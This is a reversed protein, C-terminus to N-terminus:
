LSLALMATAVTLVPMTPGLMPSSKRLEAAIMTMILTKVHRSGAHVAVNPNVPKRIVVNEYAQCVGKM